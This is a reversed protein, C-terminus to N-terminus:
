RRGTESELSKLNQSPKIKNAEVPCSKSKESSSYLANLGSQKPKKRAQIM